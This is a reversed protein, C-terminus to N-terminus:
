IEALLADVDVSDKAPTDVLEETKEMNTPKAAAFEAMKKEEYASFYLKDGIYNDSIFSEGEKNIGVIRPISAVVKGNSTYGILKLNTETGKVKNLVEVTANAVDDFSKFKASAKQIATFGKPCLVQLTQKVTAMLVELRSPMEITGGNAERTGRVDDGEKPFFLSESHYGDENEFNFRIVKYEANPDKKGKFTSIEAGTFKVKYIGWPALPHRTNRVASEASFNFNM